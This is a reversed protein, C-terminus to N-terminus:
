KQDACRQEELPMQKRRCFRIFLFQVFALLRADLGRVFFPKEISNLRSRSFFFYHVFLRSNCQRPAHMM